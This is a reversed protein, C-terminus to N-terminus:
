LPTSPSSSTRRPESAIGVKVYIEIHQLFVTDGDEHCYGQNSDILKCLKVVWFLMEEESIVRNSYVFVCVSYLAYVVCNAVIGNYASV